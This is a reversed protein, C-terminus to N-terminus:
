IQWRWTRRTQIQSGLTNFLTQLRKNWNKRTDGRLLSSTQNLVLGSGNFITTIGLFLSIQRSHTMLFEFQSCFHHYEKTIALFFHCPLWIHAHTLIDYGIWEHLCVLQMANARGLAVILLLSSLDHMRLGLPRPTFLDSSSAFMTWDQNILLALYSSCTLLKKWTTTSSPIKSVM